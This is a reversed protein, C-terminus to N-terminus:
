SSPFGDRIRSDIKASVPVEPDDRREGRRRRLALGLLFELLDDFILRRRAAIYDDVSEPRHM